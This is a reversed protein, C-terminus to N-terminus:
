IRRAIPQSLNELCYAYKSFTEKKFYHSLKNLSRLFHIQSGKIEFVGMDLYIPPHGLFYNQNLQTCKIDFDLSLRSGTIPDIFRYRTYQIVILPVLKDKKQYHLCNTLPINIIQPDNFMNGQFTSRKLSYVERQKKRRNGYKQKQELFCVVDDDPLGTEADGYWRLRLKYKLYDSNRKEYYLDFAPTDFYISNVSGKYYRPDRIFFHKFWDALFYAM